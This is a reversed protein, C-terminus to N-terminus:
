ERRRFKRNLDGRARRYLSPEENPLDRVVRDQNEVTYTRPKKIEPSSVRPVRPSLPDGRRRTSRRTSRRRRM